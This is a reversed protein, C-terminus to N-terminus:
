AYNFRVTIYVGETIPPTNFTLETPNTIPVFYGGSADFAGLAVYVSQIRHGVNARVLMQKVEGPVSPLWYAPAILGNVTGSNPSNVIWTCVYPSTQPNSGAGPATPDSIEDFCVKIRQQKQPTAITLTYSVQGVAADVAVGDVALTAIRYGAPANITREFPQGCPIKITDSSIKPM